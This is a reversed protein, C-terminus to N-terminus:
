RDTRRRNPLELGDAASMAELACVPGQAWRLPQLAGSRIRARPRLHEAGGADVLHSALGLVLPRRRPERRMIQGPAESRRQTRLPAEVGANGQVASASKWAM